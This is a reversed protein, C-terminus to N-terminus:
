QWLSQFALVLVFIATATLLFLVPMIFVYLRELMPSRHVGQGNLSEKLDVFVLTLILGLGALVGSIFRSYPMLELLAVPVASAMLGMALFAILIATTGQVDVKV